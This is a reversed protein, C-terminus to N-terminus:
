DDTTVANDQWHALTVDYTTVSPLQDLRELYAFLAEDDPAGIDLLVDCDAGYTRIASAHHGALDDDNLGAFAEAIATFTAASHPTRVRVLAGTISRGRKVPMNFMVSSHSALTWTAATAGRRAVEAVIDDQVQALTAVQAVVVAVCSGVTRAAFRVDAIEIVGEVFEKPPLATATVFGYAHVAPQDAQSAM